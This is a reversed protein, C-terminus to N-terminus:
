DNPSKASEARRNWLAKAAEVTEAMPGSAHCDYCNWRWWPRGVGYGTTGFNIPGIESGCFPCPLPSEARREGEIASGTSSRSHNGGDIGLTFFGDTAATSM